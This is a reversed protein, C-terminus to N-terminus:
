KEPNRRILAVESRTGLRLPPGWTGAGSTVFLHTGKHEYLGSYKRWVMWAMVTFPFTQGAHTHGSLMLDIGAEQAIEISDPSHYLLIAYKSRDYPLKSLAERLEKGDGYDIGIIQAGSCEVVENRLVKVGVGKLFGAIEDVGAYYEHNGTCFFAPARLEKLPMFPNPGRGVPGDSIDGTIAVIDPNMENAMGVLRRLHAEGNVLGMHLDSIHAIRMGKGLRRAPIEVTRVRVFLPVVAAICVLALTILPLSLSIVMRDFFVFYRLIDSAMLSFSFYIQFGLWLSATLYYGKALPNGRGRTMAMALIFSVASLVVFLWFWVGGKPLLLMEFLRLMIYWNFLMLLVLIISFFVAFGAYRARNRM